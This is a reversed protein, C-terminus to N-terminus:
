PIPPNKPIKPKTYTFKHHSNPNQTSNILKAVVLQSLRNFSLMEAFKLTNVNKRCVDRSCLFISGKGISKSIRYHLKLGRYKKRGNYIKIQQQRIKNIVTMAEKLNDFHFREYPSHVLSGTRRKSANTVQVFTGLFLRMRESIIRWVEGGFKKDLIELQEKSNIKVILVWGDQNIVYDYVVLYEKLYFNAYTLFLEGQSVKEIFCSNANSRGKFMYFGNASIKRIKEM